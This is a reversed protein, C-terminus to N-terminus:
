PNWNLHMNANQLYILVFLEVMKSSNHFIVTLCPTSLPSFFIAVFHLASCAILVVARFEDLLCCEFM